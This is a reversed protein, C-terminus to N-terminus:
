SYDKTHLPDVLLSERLGPFVEWKDLQETLSISPTSYDCAKLLSPEM